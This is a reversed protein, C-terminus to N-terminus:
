RFVQWVRGDAHFSIIIPYLRDGQLDYWCRFYQTGDSETTLPERKYLYKGLMGQVEDFTLQRQNTTGLKDTITERFDSAYVLANTQCRPDTSPIDFKMCIDQAVEPGLPRTLQRLTIASRLDALMLVIGTGFLGCIFVFCLFVITMVPWSRSLTRRM